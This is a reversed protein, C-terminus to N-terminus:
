GMTLLGDARFPKNTERKKRGHTVKGGLNLMKGGEARGLTEARRTKIDVSLCISCPGLRARLSAPPLSMYTYTSLGILPSFCPLPLSLYSIYFNVRNAPRFCALIPTFFFFFFSGVVVWRVIEYMPLNSRWISEM